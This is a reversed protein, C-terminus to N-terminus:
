CKSQPIKLKLCYRCDSSNIISSMPQTVRIARSQLAAGMLTFLSRMENTDRHVVVAADTIRTENTVRIGVRYGQPVLPRM